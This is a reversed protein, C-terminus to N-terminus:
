ALCLTDRGQYVPYSETIYLSDYMYTRLHTFPPNTTPPTYSCTTRHSHPILTPPPCLCTTPHSHLILPHHTYITPTCTHTHKHADAPRCSKNTPSHSCITNTSAAGYVHVVGRVKDRIFTLVCVGGWERERVRDRVVCVSQGEGQGKHAHACVSWGVRDRM